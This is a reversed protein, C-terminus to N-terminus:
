GSMNAEYLSVGQSEFVLSQLHLRAIIADAISDEDDNVKAAALANIYATRAEEINHILTEDMDDFEPVHDALCPQIDYNDVYLLDDKKMLCELLQMYSSREEHMCDLAEQLEKLKKNSQMAEWQTKEIAAQKDALEIKINSLHLQTAKLLADKEASQHKLEVLEEQVCSMQCNLNEVSQLLQDKELLTKHFDEVQKRLTNLEEKDAGMVSNGKTANSFGSGDFNDVSTDKDQPDRRKKTLVSQSVNRGNQETLKNSLSPAKTYVMTARRTFSTTAKREQDLFSQLLPFFEHLDNILRPDVDSSVRHDLDSTSTSPNPDASLWPDGEPLDVVM